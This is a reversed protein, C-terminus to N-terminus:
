GTVPLFIRMRAPGREAWRHYPVFTIEVPRPDSTPPSAPGFPLPGAGPMEAVVAGHAHAGDAHATLGLNPQLRVEEIRVDSPLDTSEVCLVLPGREVAVTGRVADIRSDPWTLRPTLPLELIVEDNREFTRQIDAWGPAVRITEDSNVRLTASDAWSPIRLRLRSESAPAALVHVRVTGEDPYRTEVQLVFGGARIEGAAYQLM